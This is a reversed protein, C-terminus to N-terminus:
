SSTSTAGGGGGGEPPLPFRPRYLWLDRRWNEPFRYNWGKLTKGCPAHLERRIITPSVMSTTSADEVEGGLKAVLALNINQSSGAPRAPEDVVVPRRSLLNNDFCTVGSVKGCFPQIRYQLHECRFIQNKGYSTKWLWCGVGFGPLLSCVEFLNKRSWARSFCFEAFFAITLGFHKPWRKRHDSKILNVWNRTHKQWVYLLSKHVGPKRCPKGIESYFIPRRKDRYDKWWRGHRRDYEEPDHAGIARSSSSSSSSSM